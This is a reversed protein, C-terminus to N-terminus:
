NLTAKTPVDFNFRAYGQALAEIGIFLPIVRLLAESLSYDPPFDRLRDPIIHDFSGLGDACIFGIIIQQTLLAVGSNGSYEISSASTM